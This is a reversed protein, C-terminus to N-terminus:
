KSNVACTFPLLANNVNENAFVTNDFGCGCSFELKNRDLRIMKFEFYQHVLPDLRLNLRLRLRLLSRDPSHRRWIKAALIFCQGLLQCPFVHRCNAWALSFGHRQFPGNTMIMDQEAQMGKLM